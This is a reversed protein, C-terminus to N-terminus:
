TPVKGMRVSRIIVIISWNLKIYIYLRQLMLGSCDVLTASGTEPDPARPGSRHFIKLIGNFLNELYNALKKQMRMKLTLRKM